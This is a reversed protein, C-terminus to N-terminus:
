SRQLMFDTVQAAPLPRSFYYGQVENCGEARLIDLQALTEVGEAITTLGLSRAMSIVARVIALDDPDDCIDRVFSQDIKLRTAAFRKLYSLSSYGTGFDDISLHVGMQHLQAMIAMAGNPDQQAVSETLEIELHTAALGAHVLIRQVQQPLDLQRFQVASVNVAVCLDILGLDQWAKAQAVATELVWQGIPLIQGNSEALPIFEAPSVQGLEPHHWRLLAEVGMVRGSQLSVQPQYHLELQGRALARRLENELLLVRSADQQLSGTFFQFDNRGTKKARYMAVDAHKFLTEVEDGDYPYVAIGISPTVTLERAQILMAESIAQLLHQAVHAAGKASTEPLLVIFEDGGLRAVTDQERVAQQMRRAVEVLVADGVGHGLTDNINKFHDLDLFMVCLNDGRRAAEALAQAMRDNLLSRNPLGTLGDFYALQAVRAEAQKRDTIDHSIVILRPSQGADVPKRAVSLVFWRTGQPTPLALEYGNCSGNAQAQALADMVLSAAAQPMVEHVTKGLLEQVPAVLWGAQSEPAHCALYRGDLDMEFLLDPIAELTAALQRQSAQIDRTRESVQQELDRRHAMQRLQLWALYALLTSWLMATVSKIALGKPDGWGAGPALSLTWGGNPVSFSKRVPEALPQNSSETIIQMQGTDPVVRWLKYGYGSQELAPLNAADLAQPLKLVVNVFGWFAPRGGPKDLFIPLRAVLGIGGQRLALPGALTLQGTNRAIQTEARMVPDKLLDLGIAQENGERPVAHSIVGGPAQILVSAGPYNPLMTSAVEDFNSVAGHAQQVLAAMAYVVSLARELRHAIAEARDSALAHAQARLVRLRQQDQQWILTASILLSALFVGWALKKPHKFIFFSPPTDRMTSVLLFAL